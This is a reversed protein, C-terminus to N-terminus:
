QGEMATVLLQQERPLVEEEPSFVVVFNPGIAVLDYLGIGNRSTRFAINIRHLICIEVFNVIDMTHIIVRETIEIQGCDVIQIPGIWRAEELNVSRLKKRWDGEKDSLNRKWEEINKSMM